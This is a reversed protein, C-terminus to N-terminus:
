PNPSEFNTNEPKDLLFSGSAPISKSVVQFQLDDLWVSGEGDLLVGYAIKQSNAAVDLVIEYKQWGTTGKIPRKQMNDFALVKSEGDVRFWMGAWRKVHDTKIYGTLRVRKGQFEDSKFMQMITGFGKAKRTSKLYAVDGKRENDHEVGIKYAKPNSGALFWGKVQPSGTMSFAFICVFCLCTFLLGRFKQYNNKM